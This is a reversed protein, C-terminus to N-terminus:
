LLPSGFLGLPINFAWLLTREHGCGVVELDNVSLMNWCYSCLSLFDIPFVVSAALSAWLPRGIDYYVLLVELSLLYCQRQSDGKSACLATFHYCLLLAIM